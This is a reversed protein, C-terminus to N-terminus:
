AGTKKTVRRVTTKAKAAPKAPEATSGEAKADSKAADGTKAADEAAPKKRSRPAAKPKADGEPKAAPAETSIGPALAKRVKKPQPAEEPASGPVIAPQETKGATEGKYVWVKIGIM